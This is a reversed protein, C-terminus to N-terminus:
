IIGDVQEAAWNFIITREANMSLYPLPINKGLSPGIAPLNNLLDLAPLLADSHLAM